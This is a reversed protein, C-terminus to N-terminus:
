PSATRLAVARAALLQRERENRTLAAARDLEAAAETTRGLKDLLDARVGFLLHYGELTGSEAIIANFTPLDSTAVHFSISM